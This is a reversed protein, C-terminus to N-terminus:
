PSERKNLDTVSMVVYCDGITYLKFVNLQLCKKDFETYLNKLMKVVKEPSAHKSFETFGVIDAFLITVNEIEDIYTEKL